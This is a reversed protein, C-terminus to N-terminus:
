SAPSYGRLHCAGRNSTAYGLGMCKLGRPDYAPTAQGKVTMALEPHGISTAFRDIGDALRDGMGERMTIMRSVEIMRERDGWAIGEGAPIFERQTAEMVTSLVQGIEIADYGWDNARDIM